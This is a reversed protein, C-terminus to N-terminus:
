RGSFKQGPRANRGRGYDALTGGMEQQQQSLTPAGQPMTDGVALRSLITSKIIRERSPRDAPADVNKPLYFKDWWDYQQPSLALTNTFQPGEPSALLGRMRELSVLGALQQENLPPMRAANVMVSQTSPDYRGAVDTRDTWSEQNVTPAYRTINPFWRNSLANAQELQQKDM